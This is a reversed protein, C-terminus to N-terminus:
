DLPKAGISTQNELVRHWIERKIEKNKKVSEM